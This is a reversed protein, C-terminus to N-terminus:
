HKNRQKSRQLIASNKKRVPSKVGCIKHKMRWPLFMQLGCGKLSSSSYSHGDAGSEPDYSCMYPLKPNWNNSVSLASSTALAAADPLFREIIYSPSLSGSHEVSELTLGDLDDTSKSNWVRAKDAKEAIDIAETLSLVEMADSFFAQDDDEDDEIDADCGDDHDHVRVQHHHLPIPPPHWTRGPPLKPRPTESEHELINTNCSESNKPRGPAQEWCFPIRNSQLDSSAVVSPMEEAIYGGPRKISLLPANLNLKGDMTLPKKWNSTRSIDNSFPNMYM